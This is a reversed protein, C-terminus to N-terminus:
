KKLGKWNYGFHDLYDRGATGESMYGDRKYVQTPGVFEFCFGEPTIVRDDKEMVVIENNVSYM